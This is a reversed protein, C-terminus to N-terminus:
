VHARAWLSLARRQAAEALFVYRQMRGRARWALVALPGRRQVNMSEVAEGDLMAQSGLALVKWAPRRPWELWALVPVAVGLWAPAESLACAAGALAGLALVAARLARPPRAEIRLPPSFM